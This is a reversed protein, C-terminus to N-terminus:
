REDATNGQGQGSSAAPGFYGCDMLAQRLHRMATALHKEVGSRSIGMIAAVEAQGHGDFRHLQLARRAGPPLTDLARHLVQREEAVLLAEDARISPDPRDEMVAAGSAVTGEVLWSHDRVMARQRARVRDLVLNNATRFLYSRPNQVPGSAGGTAHDSLKLWMDQLVDEAEAANGCRARLFALLDARYVGVLAALGGAAGQEITEVM